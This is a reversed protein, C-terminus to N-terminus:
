DRREGDACHDIARKMGEPITKNEIVRVTIENDRVAGKIMDRVVDERIYVVRGVPMSGTSTGVYFDFQMREPMEVNM